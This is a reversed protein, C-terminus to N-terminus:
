IRIIAPDAFVKKPEGGIQELKAQVLKRITDDVINEVENASM